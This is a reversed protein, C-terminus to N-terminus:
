AFVSITNIGIYNRHYQTYDDIGCKLFLTLCLVKNKETKIILLAFYYLVEKLIETM